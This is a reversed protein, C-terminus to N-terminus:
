ATGSKRFVLPPTRLILRLDLPLSWIRAYAVDLDLEEEFTSHARATVQWLGTMGAPVAFRELHHPAFFEVEYPLCPRPGVLSMEGRLVNVLQPLEDVSLKRLRRGVRTVADSRDLKYLGNGTPAARKDMLGRVYERHESEDTDAHMTRFKLMVFPHMGRGLRGQRFLVPGRSDLKIFLAVVAFLPALAILLVTSGVVDIARKTLGAAKSRRAPLLGVLPLGEVAHVDFVPAIADFLRPVVDVRVRDPMARIADILEGPSDGSFAVFVRDAETSEVIAPLDALAGLIPVTGLDSRIGKPQADVFGAFEIGYEPHQRLKRAILQGVDGAGVIIACEAGCRRSLIARAITRAVLLAPVAVGWFVGVATLSIMVGAFASVAVPLWTAFTVVGVITVIEDATSHGVRELDRRYLGLAEASAWWVLCAALVVGLSGAERAEPVFAVGVATAALLACGDAALLAHRFMSARSRAAHPSAAAEVLSGAVM